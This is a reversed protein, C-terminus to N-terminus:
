YDFFKFRLTQLSGEKRVNRNNKAWRAYFLVFKTKRGYKNKKIRM